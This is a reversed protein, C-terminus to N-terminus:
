CRGFGSFKSASHAPDLARKTIVLTSCISSIAAGEAPFSGNPQSALVMSVAASQGISGSPSGEAHARAIFRDIYTGLPHSRRLGSRRLLTYGQGSRQRRRACLALGQRALAALGGEARRLTMRCMDTKAVHNGM